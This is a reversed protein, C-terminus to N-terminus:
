SEVKNLFGCETLTQTTGVACFIVGDVDVEVHWPYDETLEGIQKLDWPLSYEFVLDSITKVSVQIYSPNISTLEEYEDYLESFQSQLISVKNVFDRLNDM